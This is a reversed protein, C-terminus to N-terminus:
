DCSLDTVSVVGFGSSRGLSVARLVVWRARPGTAAPLGIPM